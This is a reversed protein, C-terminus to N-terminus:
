RNGYASLEVEAYKEYGKDYKINGMYLNLWNFFDFCMTDLRADSDGCGGYSSSYFNLNYLRDYKNWMLDVDKMGYCILYNKVINWYAEVTDEINCGLIDRCYHKMIYIEPISQESIKKRSHSLNRVWLERDDARHDPPSSFMQILDDTYGFYLFDCTYYPIFMGGRCVGLVAIRGKQGKGGPFLQMSSIMSDFIFPKCVRQDTRTKVAYECGLEQAKRVGALSSALQYNVNMIGSESPKESAVIIAGFEALRKIAEKPEDNWTSVIIVAYPYATKYFRITNATMDDKLCIPGQLIIALSRPVAANKLIPIEETDKPKIQVAAYLTKSEAAQCVMRMLIDLHNKSFIAVILDIPKLLIKLFLIFLNKIIKKM